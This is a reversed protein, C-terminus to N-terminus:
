LLARGSNLLLLAISTPSAVGFIAWLIFVDAQISM